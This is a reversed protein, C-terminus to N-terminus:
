SESYVLRFMCIKFTQLLNVSFYVCLCVRLRASKLKLESAIRDLCLQPLLM